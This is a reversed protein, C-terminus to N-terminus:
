KAAAYAIFEAEARLEMVRHRLFQFDLLEKGQEWEPWTSAQRFFEEAVERPQGSFLAAGTKVHSVTFGAAPSIAAHLVLGGEERIPVISAHGWNKLTVRM